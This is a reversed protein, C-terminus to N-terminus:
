TTCFSINGKMPGAILDVTGAAVWDDMRLSVTQRYSNCPRYMPLKDLCFVVIKEMQASIIRKRKGKRKEETKRGPGTNQVGGGNVRGNRKRKEEPAGLKSTNSNPSGNVRGNKKRKEEPVM